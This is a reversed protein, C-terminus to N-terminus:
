KALDITPPATLMCPLRTIADDLLDLDHSVVISCAGPIRAADVAAVVWPTPM